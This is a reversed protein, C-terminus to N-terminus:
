KELNKEQELLSVNADLVNFTNSVWFNANNIGVYLKDLMFLRIFKNKNLNLTVCRDSRPILITM